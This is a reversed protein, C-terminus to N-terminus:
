LLFKGPYPNVKALEPSLAYSIEDPCPCIELKISGPICKYKKIVAGPRKLEPLFKYLDEEKM